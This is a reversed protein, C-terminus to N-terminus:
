APCAGTPLCRDCVVLVITASRVQEAMRLAVWCAGAAPVGGFLGEERAPYRAMEEADAQSVPMLKDVVKPDHDKSSPYSIRRRKRL